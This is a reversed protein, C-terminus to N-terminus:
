SKSDHGAKFQTKFNGAFLFVVAVAICIWCFLNGFRTYFTKTKLIPVAHVAAADEYLATPCFVRGSPEIFASIGTNASRVLARRNEIARFIAMSFHQYPAATKGYWADNTINLLLDAGNQAAARSLEPFIIEFCILVGLRQNKWDLVAGKEGSEFDGIHEVIKGIFPLWKKFPVYEGFPVLHAKDYKGAVKGHANILFASNYYKLVRNEYTFSPSGILFDCGAKIIGSQVLQTLNEDYTFYFPAATEPWVILEPKQPRTSQSLEIYKRTTAEQFRPDWKISQDINGQVIAVSTRDSKEIWGDVENLRKGGYYFIGTFLGAWITLFLFASSRSVPSMRWTKNSFGLVLMFWVGNAGAILFSLGYVGTVDAIQILRLHQYQSYGLLEWPFGSLLFSRAYELLVWLCPMVFIFAAPKRPAWSLAVAFFGTYLSLYLALLLMIPISIAWPLNGYTNMTYAAWYILTVYHVLGALLGIRFRNFLSLGDVAILLPLLAVWAAADLGINPFAATSLLGSATSLLLGKRNVSKQNLPFIRCVEIL